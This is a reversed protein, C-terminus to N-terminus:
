KFIKLKKVRVIDGPRLNCWFTRNFEKRAYNYVETIKNNILNDQRYRNFDEWAEKLMTFILVIAFTALQSYPNKPSFPMVTLISIILFYVNAIRMFQMLLSKPFWTLINYKTTTITNDGFLKFQNM